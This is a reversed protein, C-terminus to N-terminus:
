LDSLFMMQGLMLQNPYPSFYPIRRNGPHRMADDRMAARVFHLVLGLDINSPTM